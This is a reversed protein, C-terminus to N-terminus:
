EQSGPVPSFRIGRRAVGIPVTTSADITEATCIINISTAAIATTGEFVMGTSLSVLEVYAITEHTATVFSNLHPIGQVFINSRIAGDFDRTVFRVNERAGSFNTCHFVTAVGTNNAGGNDRVGPFRYIIVEPDVQAAEAPAALVFALGLAAIMSHIAKM